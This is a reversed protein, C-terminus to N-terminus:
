NKTLQISANENEDAEVKVTKRNTTYGTKQVTITYQAPELDKFEFRGDAATTKTKGGPSLGIEAGSIPEETAVDSVTGSISGFLNYKKQSCSNMVATVTLIMCSFLIIKKM